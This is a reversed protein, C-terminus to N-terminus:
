LLITLQVLITLILKKHVNIETPCFNILAMVVLRLLDQVEVEVAERVPIRKVSYM